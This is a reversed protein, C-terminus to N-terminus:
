TDHKMLKCVLPIPHEPRLKETLMSKEENLQEIEVKMQEIEENTRTKAAREEQYLDFAIDRSRQRDENIRVQGEKLGTFSTASKTIPNYQRTHELISGLTELNEQTDSKIEDIIDARTKHIMALKSEYKKINESYEKSAIDM